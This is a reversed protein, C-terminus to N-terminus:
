KKLSSKVNKSMVSKTYFSKKKYTLGLSRVRKFVAVASANFQEGIDKLTADPHKSIYEKVKDGDLKKACRTKNDDAELRGDSLRKQWRWLTMYGIAFVECAKTLSHGEKVYSLVRERLDISYAKAM